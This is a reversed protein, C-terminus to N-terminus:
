RAAGADTGARGAGPPALAEVVPVVDRAIERYLPAPPHAAWLFHLEQEPVRQMSANTDVVPVDRTAALRAVAQNAPGFVGVGLPYSLVV